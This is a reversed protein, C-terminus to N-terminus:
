HWKMWEVKIRHNVDEDIDMDRQLVLGLYQLYGEQASSLRGFLMEKRM